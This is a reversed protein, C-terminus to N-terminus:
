RFQMLRVQVPLEAFHPALERIDEARIVAHAGIDVLLVLFARTREDEGPLPVMELVVKGRRWEDSHRVAVFMGAGCEPLGEKASSYFSDMFRAMSAYKPLSTYSQFYIEHPSVIHSIRLDYFDEVVPTPPLNLSKVIGIGGNMVRTQQQQSTNTYGISYGTKIDTKMKSLQRQLDECVNTKGQILSVRPIDNAGKGVSVGVFPRDLLSASTLKVLEPDHSEEVGALIVKMALPPLSVFDRHLPVLQGWSIDVVKGVDLLLAKCRYTMRDVKVVQTREVQGSPLQASFYNGQPMPDGNFVVGTKHRSRLSTQLNDLKKRGDGFIVWVSSTSEVHTVTLPWEALNSPYVGSPMLMNNNNNVTKTALFVLVNGQEKKMTIESFNLMIDAWSEPLKEQYQKEHFKEVQTKFLGHQRGELFKRVRGSWTKVNEKTVPCNQSVPIPKVQPPTSMVKKPTVKIPTTFPQPKRAPQQKSQFSSQIQRNTPPPAFPTARVNTGTGRFNNQNNMGQSFQPKSSYFKNVNVPAPRGGGGKGRGKGGQSQILDKIHKTEPTEVGVVMVDRGRVTIRCVDPISQLFEELSNFNFRRYPVTEGVIDKYTTVVKAGPVGGKSALLISRLYKKCKDLDSM